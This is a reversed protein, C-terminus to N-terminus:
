AIELRLPGYAASDTAANVLQPMCLLIACIKIKNFM